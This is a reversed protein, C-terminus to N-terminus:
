QIKWFWQNSLDLVLWIYKFCAFFDLIHHVYLGFHKKAFLNYKVVFKPPSLTNECEIEWTRLPMRNFWENQKRANVMECKIHNYSNFDIKDYSKFIIYFVTMNLVVNEFSSTNYLFWYKHWSHKKTNNCVVNREWVKFFKVKKVNAM